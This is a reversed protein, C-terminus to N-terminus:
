LAVALLPLSRGPISGSPVAGIRVAGQALYFPEAFPDSAITLRHFGLQTATAAIHKFLGSGVGQGIADPDVFLMGLEGAPPDGELTVFGLIREPQRRAGDRSASPAETPGQAGAEVPEVRDGYPPPGEQGVRPGAHRGYAGVKGHVRRSAGHGTLAAHGTAYGVHGAGPGVPGRHAGPEREAGRSDTLRGLHRGRGASVEAAGLAGQGEGEGHGEGQGPEPEHPTSVAVQTRRKVIEEPRLTLEPRFAAQFEEDYGWHAKSRQALASLQEAEDPRAPRIVFNTM